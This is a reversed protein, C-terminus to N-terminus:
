YVYFNTTAPDARKMKRNTRMLMGRMAWAAGVTGACFAVSAVMAAVFRPADADPWLYPTYVSAVNGIMNVIAIAVAKKEDSEGVASATWGLVLNNVGYSAGVFVMMGAYRVGVDTSAACMAFGAVAVAKAGTIHWTRENQRGSLWSQGLAVVTALVYPPCTLALSETTHGDGGGGIGLSAVATPMFNKFGTASCHLCYMLSFVWTRPDVCAQRLGEWVSVPEATRRTTDRAM